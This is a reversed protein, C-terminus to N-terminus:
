PAMRERLVDLPYFTDRWRVGGQRLTIWSSRWFAFAMGLSALPLVFFVAAGAGLYHGIFGYMLHLTLIAALFGSSRLDPCAAVVAYPAFLGVFYVLTIVALRIVSYNLAAFGNKELGTIVGWASPQWRVSVLGDARLLAQKAGHQKLLKGLKV